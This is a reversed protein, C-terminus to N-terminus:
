VLKIPPQNIDFHPQDDQQSPTKYHLDRLAQRQVEDKKELLNLLLNSEYKEKLSGCVVSLVIAALVGWVLYNM